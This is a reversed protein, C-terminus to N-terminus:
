AFQVDALGSIAPQQAGLWGVHRLYFGRPAPNNYAGPPYFSASRKKFAGNKVAQAFDPNVQDALMLLRGDATAQLSKVWGYAPLNNEPHGIVLPASVKQPDYSSAMMQVDAPTFEIQQGDMATHQGARFIEIPQGQMISAADASLEAEFRQEAFNMAGAAPLAPAPNRASRLQREFEGSQSNQLQEATPEPAANSGAATVIRLATIYDVDHRLLYARAKADIDAESPQEDLRKQWNAQLESTGM